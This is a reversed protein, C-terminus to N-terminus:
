SNRVFTKARRIGIRLFSIIRHCIDIHVTFVRSTWRSGTDALTFRPAQLPQYRKMDSSDQRSARQHQPTVTCNIPDVSARRCRSQATLRTETTGREGAGRKLGPERGNVREGEGRWEIRPVSTVDNPDEALLAQVFGPLHAALKLSM